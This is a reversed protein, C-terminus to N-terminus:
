ESLFEHCHHDIYPNVFYEQFNDLANIYTINNPLQGVGYKPLLHAERAISKLPIVQTLRHRRTGEPQVAWMGTDPDRQNSVPLFWSVLACQVHDGRETVEYDMFSFFLHVRAILMGRMGPQDEDQVVFVTDHRPHGYWLPNSRIIQRYMGCPGCLDSPAYFRTVASHFVHIKGSFNIRTDVDDPIPRTPHRRSYLFSKFVSTFDPERIYHALKKLDKPYRQEIFCYLHNAFRLILRFTRFMGPKAALTISSLSQPGSEPGADGLREYIGHNGQGSDNNSTTEDDSENADRQGQSFHAATSGIIKNEQLFRRRFAALKELRVITRLMQGLAKFRSSRRWPEKVAKIHKSETISSCLGNPSGFLPISTLYHILAHQHPLSISSRVGETIFVNRLTHFQELLDEATKLASTTIANRRFIYCLEM